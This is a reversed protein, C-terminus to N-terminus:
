RKGAIGVSVRGTNKQFQEPANAAVLLQEAQKNAEALRFALFLMGYFAAFATLVFLRGVDRNTLVVIGEVAVFGVNLAIATAFANGFSAPAHHHGHEHSHGHHDHHAHSAAM